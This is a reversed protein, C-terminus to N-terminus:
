LVQGTARTYMRRLDESDRSLRELKTLITQVRAAEEPPLGKPAATYQALAEETDDEDDPLEEGEGEADEPAPEAAEEEEPPPEDGEEEPMEDKEVPPGEGEDGEAEDEGEGGADGGFGFDAYEDGLMTRSQELLRDLFPRVRPHEVQRVEEALFRVLHDLAAAGPPLRDDTMGEGELTPKSETEEPSAPDDASNGNPEDAVEKTVVPPTDKKTVEPDDEEEEVEEAKEGCAAYAMVLASEDDFGEDVFDPIKTKACEDLAARQECPVCELVHALAKRYAPTLRKEVETDDNDDEDAGEGEEPPAEDAPADGSKKKKRSYSEQWGDGDPDGPAQSVGQIGEVIELDSKVRRLHGPSAYQCHKHHCRMSLPHYSFDYDGDPPADEAHREAVAAIQGKIRQHLEAEPIGDEGAQDAPGDASKDETFDPRPTNPSGDPKRDAAPSKDDEKSEEEVTYGGAAGDSENMAKEIMAAGKTVTRGAAPGALAKRPRYHSGQLQVQTILDRQEAIRALAQELAEATELGDLEQISRAYRALEYLHAGSYGDTQQALSAAQLDSLGPVWARLMAQRERAVPLAFHLVEHFRGPRDILAEPVREPFNTTMVTLVGASKIMGDMETKILDVAQDHMWNDVDEFYVVSPALERALAFAEEFGGVSGAYHFDRASVWIFTGKAQNRLIRGSLTKGTGPPGTLLLGRNPFEAGKDNFVTLTRRLADKNRDELFVQDWTEETRPLFEGSLCFAEGKLFNNLQAWERTRDFLQEGFAAQKRSTYVTVRVGSWSPAFSLVFPGSPGSYFALGDVLFTARKTSNLQVNSYAPPAETGDGYLNRVDLRECGALSEQLGTLVTGLRVSSVGMSLEALDKVKAGIHRSVWDYVVNAPRCPQAAVDFAKSHTRNWRPPDPDAPPQPAPCWGNAWTKAPAALPELVRRLDEDIPSGAIMGKSLHSRIVNCKANMPVVVHSYELLEWKNFRYGLAPNGPVADLPEPEELPNFGISLGPLMGEDILAFVQEAKKLRQSFFTTALIRRGPEIKVTLEGQPDMARGIPFILEGHGFLVTPNLRYNSLDCGEPIVIDGGRDRDVTSIVSTVCMAAQNVGILNASPTALALVQDKVPYAYNWGARRGAFTKHTAANM